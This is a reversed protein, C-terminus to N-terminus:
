FWNRLQVIGGVKNSFCYDSCDSGLNVSSPLFFFFEWGEKRSLHNYTLFALTRCLFVSSKQTGLYTEQEELCVGSKMFKEGEM